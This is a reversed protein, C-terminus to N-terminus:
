KIADLVATLVSTGMEKMLTEIEDSTKWELIKEIGNGIEPLLGVVNSADDGSVTPDTSAVFTATADAKKKQILALGNTDMIRTWSHCSSRTDPKKQEVKAHYYCRNAASGTESKQHFSFGACSYAHDACANQCDAVSVGEDFAKGGQGVHAAAGTCSFGNHEGQSDWKVELQQGTLAMEGAGEKQVHCDRNEALSMAVASGKYYCRNAPIEMKKDNPWSVQNGTMEFTEAATTVDFAACEANGACKAHCDEISKADDYSFGHRGIKLPTGHCSKQAHQTFKAKATTTSASVTSAASSASLLLATKM